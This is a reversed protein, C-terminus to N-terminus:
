INKVRGCTPSFPPPPPSWVSVKFALLEQMKEWAEVDGKAANGALKLRDSESLMTPDKSAELRGAFKFTLVKQRDGHNEEMSATRSLEVPQKYFAPLREDNANTLLQEAKSRKAALSEEQQVMGAKQMAAALLMQNTWKRYAVRHLDSEGANKLNHTAAIAVHAAKLRQKPTRPSDM